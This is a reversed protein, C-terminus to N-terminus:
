PQWAYYNAYEAATRFTLIGGQGSAHSADVAQLVQTGNVFARLENGVADLRLDYWTNPTVSLTATGLVTVAGNVVKRLSVTNSSRVTLYYYNSTDVYRAAIGFWRDQGAAFATARARAMVVQDDTPTGVVARADGVTATQQMIRVGTDGSCNWAGTGTVTWERTNVLSGSCNAQSQDFIPRQGVQAAVVNDYDVAARYGLLAASGHPIPQVEYSSIFLKGDVFVQISQGYAKLAVRYSRGAVIPVQRQVATSVTGNRVFKLAIVGSSRLTVYYYNSPDQYRV